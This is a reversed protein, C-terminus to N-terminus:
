SMLYAEIFRNIDGDLVANVNGVELDTRHDKVLQYPQLIYSRIQSGWAIQKKVAHLKDMEKEREKLEVEYLRAKLMKMATARNMHQSRENQCAVAINTPIHTIRIASSTKNVHQGGAGSARYTDVRLDKEDITIEINDDVEPYVFVSAFSTHRRANADYPSIRVLRHIGVEAKLYGYAYDGSVTITASKIGAEEGELEDILQTKFGRREAWRLYMRLLMSAWDQAETGGAGAHISVFANSIDSEGSLMKKFEMEEVTRALEDAMTQMEAELDADEDVEAALELLVNCDEAKKELGRWSAFVTEILKRERNIKQAEKADKWFDPDSCIKELEDLRSQKAPIDFIVGFPKWANKL